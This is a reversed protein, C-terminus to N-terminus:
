IASSYPLSKIFQGMYEFDPTGDSKVPLHIISQEMRDKKWKRGYSYRYQEKEILPIIFLAVYANMRFEPCNKINPYLVNVDDSAWFPKEQYFAKGVSGNYNVTIAGGSHIPISDIYQRVGNNRDIAGIYPTNGENMDEKTLRKGKKVDFVFDYRFPKWDSTNFVMTEKSVPRDSVDEKWLKEIYEQMFDFDPKGNLNVPLSIQSSPMRMPRWKRGYGWRYRDCEIVTILFMAIEPTLDRNLLYLPNIDHSCTFDDKQYFAYGVSGNNSVTICNGRFIKNKIKDPETTGTRNFLSIEDITYKETIGNDSQTAGIFPINGGDFLHDPKKNYYGKKIEFIQDYRFTKWCSVDFESLIM